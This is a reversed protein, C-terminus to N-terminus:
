STELDYVFVCWVRYSEELRSILEDCLGRDTLVCCESSVFTWAEPPIRVWLRLLRAVASKRRLVRPLQSQCILLTSVSVEYCPVSVPKERLEENKGKETVTEDNSQKWKIEKGSVRCM